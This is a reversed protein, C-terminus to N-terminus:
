FSKVLYENLEDVFLIKDKEAEFGCLLFVGLVDVNQNVQIKPEFPKSPL